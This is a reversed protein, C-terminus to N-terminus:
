FTNLFLCYMNKQYEYKDKDQTVDSPIPIVLDYDWDSDPITLDVQKKYDKNIFRETIDILAKGGKLYLRIINKWKDNMDSNNYQGNESFYYNYWEETRRRDNTKNYFDYFIVCTIQWMIEGINKLFIM